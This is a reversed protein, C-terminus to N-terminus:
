GGSPGLVVPQQSTVPRGDSDLLLLEVRRNINDAIASQSGALPLSEGHSTGVIRVGAIGQGTLYEKVGGIRQEALKRNYAESSHVDTFGRIAVLHRPFKQLLKINSSDRICMESGM